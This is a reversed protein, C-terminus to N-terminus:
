VFELQFTEKRLLRFLHAYRELGQQKWWERVMRQEKDASFSFFAGSLISIEPFRLIRMAIIMGPAASQALAINTLHARYIDYLKLHDNM